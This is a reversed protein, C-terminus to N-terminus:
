VPKVDAPHIELATAQRILTVALVLKTTRDKREIRGRIGTLPGRVVEVLMGEALFPHPDYRLDSTVLRRVAEIEDEPIAEPFGQFGVFGAVGAINLM